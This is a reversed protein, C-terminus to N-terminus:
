ATICVVVALQVAYAGILAAHQELQLPNLLGHPWDASIAVSSHCLLFGRFNYIVSVPAKCNCHCTHLPLLWLTSQHQGCLLYHNNSRM